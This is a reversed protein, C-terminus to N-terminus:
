KIYNLTITDNSDLTFGLTTANYNLISMIAITNKNQIITNNVFYFEDNITSGINYSLGNVSINVIGKPVYIIQVGTSTGSITLNTAIQEINTVDASISGTNIVMSDVINVLIRQVEDAIIENNNNPIINNTIDTKLENLTQQM